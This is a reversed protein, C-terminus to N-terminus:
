VIAPDVRGSMLWKTLDSPFYRIAGEVMVYPPGKGLHRWQQLTRYSMNILASATKTCVPAEPHIQM